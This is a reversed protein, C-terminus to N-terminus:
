LGLRFPICDAVNGHTRPSEDAERDEQRPENHGRELCQGGRGSIRVAGTGAVNALALTVARRFPRRGLAAMLGWCSRARALQPTAALVFGLGQRHGRVRIRDHARRLRQLDSSLPRGRPLRAALNGLCTVGAEIRLWRPNDGLTKRIRQAARASPTVSRRPARGQSSIGSSASAEGLRDKGHENGASHDCSCADTRV